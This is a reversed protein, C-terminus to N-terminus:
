HLQTGSLVLPTGDDLSHLSQASGRAGAHWCHRPSGGVECVRRVSVMDGGPAEQPRVAGPTSARGAVSASVWLVEEASLVEAISHGRWFSLHRTFFKRGAWWCEHVSLEVFKPM